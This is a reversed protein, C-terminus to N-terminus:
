LGGPEDEFRDRLIDAVTNHGNDRAFDEARRYRESGLLNTDAGANILLQVMDLRGYAAALEFATHGAGNAANIDAGADILIHAIELSGSAAAIAIASGGNQVPGPANVNAGLDILRGVLGFEKGIVAAQLATGGHTESAPPANIDAGMELLFDVIAMGNISYLKSRVLNMVATQLATGGAELAPANVDAKHRFLLQVLEFNGWLAAAQLPYCGSSCGTANVDVGAKLLVEAIELTESAKSGPPDSAILQLVTERFPSSLGYGSANASAGKDLLIRILLPEFFDELSEHGERRREIWLDVVFHLPPQFRYEEPWLSANPDANSDLMM